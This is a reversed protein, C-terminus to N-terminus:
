KVHLMTIHWVKKYTWGVLLFSCSFFFFRATFYHRHFKNILYNKQGFLPFASRTPRFRSKTSSKTSVVSEGCRTYSELFLDSKWERVCRNQVCPLSFWAHSAHFRIWSFESIQNASYMKNWLTTNTTWLKTTQQGNPWRLNAESPQEGLWHNTYIIFYLNCFFAFLM